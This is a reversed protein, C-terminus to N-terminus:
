RRGTRADERMFRNLSVLVARLGPSEEALAILEALDLGVSDDPTGGSAGSLTEIYKAVKIIKRNRLRWVTSQAVGIKEGIERDNQGLRRLLLQVREQDIRSTM